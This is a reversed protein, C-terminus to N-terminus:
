GCPGPATDRLVVEAGDPSTSLVAALQDLADLIDSLAGTVESAKLPALDEAFSYDELIELARELSCVSDKSRRIHNKISAEHWDLVRAMLNDDGKARSKARARLKAVREVARKQHAVSAKREAIDNRIAQEILAAVDMSTVDHEAHIILGLKQAIIEIAGGDFNDPRPPDIEGTEDYRERRKADSLVAYATVLENFAEVSGGVDPHSTKAKGRYAKHIEKRSAARKIGLVQYLDIV